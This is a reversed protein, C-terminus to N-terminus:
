PVNELGGRMYTEIVEMSVLYKTGIRVTPLVGKVVMQRLAYETFATKPDSARVEAIAQSITRMRM